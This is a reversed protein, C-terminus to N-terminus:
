LKTGSIQSNEKCAMFIWPIKIPEDKVTLALFLSIHVLYSNYTRSLVSPILSREMKSVEWIVM